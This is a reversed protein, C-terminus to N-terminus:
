CLVTHQAAHSDREDQGGAGDQREGAAEAFERWGSRRRCGALGAGKRQLDIQLPFSVGGGDREDQATATATM